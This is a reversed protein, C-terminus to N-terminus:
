HRIAFYTDRLTTLAHPGPTGPDRGAIMLEFEHKRDGPRKHDIVLEQVNANKDPDNYLNQLADPGDLGIKGRQKFVAFTVVYKGPPVGDDATYTRFTFEGHPGAVAYVREAILANPNPLDNLMVVLKQRRSLKPEEGDITVKGALPYVVARAQGASKLAYDLARDSKSECGGATLLAALVALASVQAPCSSSGRILRCDM